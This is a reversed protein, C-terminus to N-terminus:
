ILDLTGDARWFRSIDNDVRNAMAAAYRTRLRELEATSHQMAFPVMGPLEQALTQSPDFRESFGGSLSYSRHRTRGDDTRTRTEEGTMSVGVLEFARQLLWAPQEPLNKPIKLGLRALLKKQKVAREAVAKWGSSDLPKDALDALDDFEGCYAKIISHLMRAQLFPDEGNRPPYAAQDYAM